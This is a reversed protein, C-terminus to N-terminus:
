YNINTGQLACATLYSCDMASNIAHSNICSIAEPTWHACSIVCSQYAYEMDEATADDGYGACKKYKECAGDCGTSIADVEAPEESIDTCYPAAHSLQACEVADSVCGMTQEGWDAECILQCSAEDFIGEENFTGETKQTEIDDQCLQPITNQCLSACITATDAPQSEAATNHDTTNPQNTVGCGAAFFFLGLIAAFFSIKKM